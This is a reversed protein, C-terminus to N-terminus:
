RRDEFMQQFSLFIIIKVYINGDIHTGSTRVEALEVLVSSDRHIHTEAAHRLDNGSRQFIFVFNIFNDNSRKKGTRVVRVCILTCVMQNLLLSRGSEECPHAGGM